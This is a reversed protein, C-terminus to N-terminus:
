TGLVRGGHFPVDKVDSIVYLLDVHMRARLCRYFRRTQQDIIAAIDVPDPGTREGVANVSNLDGSNIVKPCAGIMRASLPPLCADTVLEQGYRKRRPYDRPGPGGRQDVWAAFEVRWRVRHTSNTDEFQRSNPRGSQRM